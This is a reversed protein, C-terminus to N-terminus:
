HPQGQIVGLSGSSKIVVLGELRERGQGSSSPDAREKLTEQSYLETHIQERNLAQRQPM